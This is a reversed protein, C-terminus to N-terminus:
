TSSCGHPLPSPSSLPEAGGTSLSPSFQAALPLGSSSRVPSPTIKLKTIVWVGRALWVAAGIQAPLLFKLNSERALGLALFLVSPIAALLVPALWRLDRGGAQTSARVPAGRVPAILGAIALLFPIAMTVDGATLGLTLWRVIISLATQTDYGGGAQGWGGIQHLATPIWPAFVILALLNASIYMAWVRLPAAHQARAEPDRQNMPAGVLLIAVFAAGQAIMVLPFAYQTWLGAANILGLAAARKWSPREILALLMWAGAASWLALLAYMRAEQAYYLSFTNLAVFAAALVAAWRAMAIRRALAYTLAVTLLSAFASLSRLAFETEGALARWIALTWYYLPPHIDQGANTAIDAFSRTAQVYSSGEDGWLSQAGLLHVRLAFALLLVAALGFLLMWRQSRLSSSTTEIM